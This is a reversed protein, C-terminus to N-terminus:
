YNLLVEDGVKLGLRESVGSNVELVYKATATPNITQCDSGTCPEANEKIFVIKNEKNIWIIDLPILTNKMWFPYIQEEKFVFFMGRDQDLQKRFMLGNEIEEPDKAVEIDFCNDGFCARGQNKLEKIPSLLINTYTFFIAGFSLLFVLFLLIKFVSKM